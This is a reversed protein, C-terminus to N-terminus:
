IRSAEYFGLFLILCYFCLTRVVSVEVHDCINSSESCQIRLCQRRDGSEITVYANMTPLRQLLERHNYAFYFTDVWADIPSDRVALLQQMNIFYKKRRSENIWGEIDDADVVNSQTRSLLLNKVRRDFLLPQGRGDNRYALYRDRHEPRTSILCLDFQWGDPIKIKEFSLM